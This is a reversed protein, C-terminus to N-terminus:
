CTTNACWSALQNALPIAYHFKAKITRMRKATLLTHFLNGTLLSLKPQHLAPL